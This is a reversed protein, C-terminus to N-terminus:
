PATVSVTCEKSTVKTSEADTVECKYKGADWSVAASKSFTPASTGVAVGDKTWKYTYPTKGGKVAVTLNLAAGEVVSLTASLDTTFELTPTPETTVGKGSLRKGNGRM